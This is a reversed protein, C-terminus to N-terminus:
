MVSCLLEPRWSLCLLGAGAFELLDEQCVQEEHRWAGKQDNQWVRRM